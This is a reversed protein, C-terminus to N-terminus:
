YAQHRKKIITSAISQVSMRLLSGLDAKPRYDPTHWSIDRRKKMIQEYIKMKSKEDKKTDFVGYYDGGMQKLLSFCPVDTLGDGVYIMNEFPIRRKEPEVFQNVAAPDKDSDGKKIGKNIEFIFRTKETFSIVRKLYKLEKNGDEGLRCGYVAKFNRDIFKNGKIIEELGGSVVYFEIDIDPDTDKVIKKLASPLQKLGPFLKKELTAGFKFLDSNSYPKKPTGQGIFDLILKLYAFPPEFGQEFLKRFHTGWFINADIGFSKILETTSDPVLTDDYDFILAIIDM